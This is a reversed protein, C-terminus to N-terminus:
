NHIKRLVTEASKAMNIENQEIQQLTQEIEVDEQEVLEMDHDAEKLKQVADELLSAIERMKDEQNGAYNSDTLDIGLQRNVENIEEAISGITNNEIDTSITRVAHIFDEEEKFDTLAKKLDEKAGEHLQISKKEMQEQNEIEGVIEQLRQEAEQTWQDKGMNKYHNENRLYSRNAPWKNYVYDIFERLVKDSISGNNEQLIEILKKGAKPVDEKPISGVANQISSFTATTIGYKQNWNINDRFIALLNSKLQNNYNLDNITRLFVEWNSGSLDIDLGAEEQEGSRRYIKIMKVIKVEWNTNQPMEVLAVLMQKLEWYKVVRLINLFAILNASNIKIENHAYITIVNSEREINGEEIAILIEMLQEIYVTNTINVEQIVREINQEIQTINIQQIIQQIQIVVDGDSADVDGINIELVEEMFNLIVENNIEQYNNEYMFQMLQEMLVQRNMGVTSVNQLFSNYVGPSLGGLMQQQQMQPGYFVYNGSDGQGLNGQLLSLMLQQMQQQQQGQSDNGGGTDDDDDPSSPPNTPTPDPNPTPDPEPDGGDGRLGRTIGEAAGIVTDKTSSGNDSRGRAIYAVIAILLLPTWLQWWNFFVTFAGQIGSAVAEGPIISSLGLVALIGIIVVIVGIIALATGLVM